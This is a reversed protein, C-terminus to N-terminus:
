EASPDTLWISRSAQTSLTLQKGTARVVVPFGDASGAAVELEVDLGVGLEALEVLLHSDVDSIRAVRGVTGAPAESLMVVEPRLVVGHEDPIPDGHPDRRPRGLQADIRTLLLPSIVHELAEAEAHVEDWSYGLSHVLYTELLRHRRVMELALTTGAPTLTVAGYPAHVVFGLRVLKQVMETVSSPSLGLRAALVSGTIPSSQWETHTYIVKIHDEISISRVTM